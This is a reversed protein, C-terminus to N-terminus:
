DKMMSQIRAGVYRWLTFAINVVSPIVSTSIMAGLLLM